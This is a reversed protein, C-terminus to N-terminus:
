AKPKYAELAMQILEADEVTVKMTVMQQKTNTNAMVRLNPRGMPPPPPVNAVAKRTSKAKPKPAEERGALIEAKKADVLVRLQRTDPTDNKFESPQDGNLEANARYTLYGDSPQKFEPNKPVTVNEKSNRIITPNNMGLNAM